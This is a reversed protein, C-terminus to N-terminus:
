NFKISKILNTFVAEADKTYGEGTNNGGYLRFVYIKDGNTFYYAKMPNEGLTGFYIYSGQKPMTSSTLGQKLTTIVTTKGDIGAGSYLTALFADLSQNNINDYVDVNVQMTNADYSSFDFGTKQRKEIPVDPTNFNLSLVPKLMNSNNYNSTDNVIASFSKPYQFTINIAPNSYEYVGLQWVTALSFDDPRINTIAQTPTATVSSVITVTPTTNLQTLQNKNNAQQRTVLYYGGTAIVLLIIIIAVIIIVMKPRNPNIRQQTEIQNVLPSQQNIVEQEM